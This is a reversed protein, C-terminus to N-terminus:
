SFTVTIKMSVKVLFKTARSYPLLLYLDIIRSILKDHEEVIIDDIHLPLFNRYFSCGQLSSGVGDWSAASM